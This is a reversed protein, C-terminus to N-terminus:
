SAVSKSSSDLTSELWAKHKKEDEFGRKLIPKAEAWIDDYEMMREYAYNTDIENSRMAILIADDGVLNALVVKGKALWQKASPAGAYTEHHRALLYSIEQIHRVHDNKFEELKNKYSTNQLRNLAAEYAERADYELELLQKLADVFNSQTGVLTVM